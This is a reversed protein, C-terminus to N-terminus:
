TNMSHRYSFNANRKWRNVTNLTSPKGFPEKFGGFNRYYNTGYGIASGLVGLGLATRSPRQSSPLGAINAATQQRAELEKLKRSLSLAGRARTFSTRNREEEREISLIRADVVNGGVGSSAASARITGKAELGTMFSEFSRQSIARQGTKEESRLQDIHSTLSSRALKVQEARLAAHARAAKKQQKHQYYQAFINIGLGAAGVVWPLAM